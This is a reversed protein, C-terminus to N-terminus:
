PSDVRKIWDAKENLKDLLRTGLATAPTYFGGPLSHAPILHKELALLMGAEALIRSTEGFGPDLTNIETFLTRPEAEDTKAIQVIRASGREIAKEDPKFGLNTILNFVKENLTKNALMKQASNLIGTLIGCLTYAAVKNQIGSFEKYLFRGSCYAESGNVKISETPVASAFISASRRVVRTNCYGLMFPIGYLGLEPIYEPQYHWDPFYETVKEPEPEPYDKQLGYPDLASPEAFLKVISAVSGSGATGDFTTFVSTVESVGCHFERKAEEVLFLTGLDSPVSDFGCTPILTVNNTKAQTGYKEMMRVMFQPEGNIDLYDANHEVCAKVLPEGLVEYPGVTTMVVKAAKAVEDISDGSGVVIGVDVSEGGEVTGRLEEIIQELKGRSRGAIAWKLGPRANRFLYEAVKKGVSGSAGYILLDYQKEM